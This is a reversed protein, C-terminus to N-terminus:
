FYAPDQDGRKKLEDSIRRKSAEIRTIEQKLEAYEVSDKDFEEMKDWIRDIKECMGDFNIKLTRTTTKSHVM